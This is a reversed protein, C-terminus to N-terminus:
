RAVKRQYKPRRLNSLHTRSPAVLSPAVYAPAIVIKMTNAITKVVM